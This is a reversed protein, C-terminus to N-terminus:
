NEAKWKLNLPEELFRRQKNNYQVNVNSLTSKNPVDQNLNASRFFNLSFNTETKYHFKCRFM